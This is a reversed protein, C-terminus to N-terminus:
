SHQYFSLYRHWFKFWVFRNVWLKWLKQHLKHFDYSQIPRRQYLPWEMDIYYETCSMCAKLKPMRTERRVKKSSYKSHRWIEQFGRCSQPGFSLVKRPAQRRSVPAPITTTPSPFNRATPLCQSTPPTKALWTQCLLVRKQFVCTFFCNGSLQQETLWWVDVVTLERDRICM